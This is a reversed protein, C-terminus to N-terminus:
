AFSGSVATKWLAARRPPFALRCDLAEATLNPNYYPDIDLADTWRAALMAKERNFRAQKEPTDEYGRSASELHYLRAHPTWIVRYGAKRIRLCFDVDNYAVAFGEDLGGTEQWVGRPVLMCAATVISVDQALRMRNAYGPANAPQGKFLHSPGGGVGLVVGAHQVTNDGYWLMSGVAGIGDRMAHGAMERLWGPETVMVDNNMLLLLSGTAHRVAENNIAAYNFAGPCPIVRVRQDLSLERLVAHTAEEASGNDAILIELDPWSTRLRLGNVCQELLDARDRTPIVVSIRPPKVPLPWIVRHLGPAIRRVAPAPFGPQRPLAGVHEEASRQLQAAEVESLASTAQQHYLVHPVHAIKLGPHNGVIQLILDYVARRSPLGRGLGIALEASLLALRCAYDQGLFFDPNWGMKFHPKQRIGDDSIEDEDSYVLAPHSPVHALLTQLAHPPLMDGAGVFSLFKGRAEGLAANFSGCALIRVRPDPGAADESGGLPILLEWNAYTQGLLSSTTRARDSARGMGAPTGLMVVSILPAHPMAAAEARLAELEEPSPTDFRRVWDGYSGQPQAPLPKPPTAM